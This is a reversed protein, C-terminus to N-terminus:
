ILVGQLMKAKQPNDKRHKCGFNERVFQVTVREITLGDKIFDSLAEATDKKHFPNDVCCAVICGCEARGIYSMGEDTM